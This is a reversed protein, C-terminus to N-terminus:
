RRVPLDLPILALHRRDIREFGLQDLEAIVRELGTRRLELGLEFLAGLELVQDNRGEGRHALRGLADQAHPMEVHLQDTAHDHVVARNGLHAGAFALRQHCRQGHIEIRQGALARMQHGDIVVQDPAVGLPHALDVIEQAEGIAHDHM